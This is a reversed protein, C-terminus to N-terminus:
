GCPRPIHSTQYILGMYSYEDTYTPLADQHRQLSTFPIEKPARCASPHTLTQRICQDLLLIGIMCVGWM